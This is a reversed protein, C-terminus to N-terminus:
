VLRDFLQKLQSSGELFAKLEKPRNKLVETTLHHKMADPGKEKLWKELEELEQKQYGETRGDFFKIQAILSSFPKSGILRDGYGETIRNTRIDYIFHFSGKEDKMEDRLPDGIVVEQIEGEQSNKKVIFTVQGIRFMTEDFPVRKSESTALRIDLHPSPKQTSKFKELTEKSHLPLFYHSFKLLPNYSPNLESLSHHDVAFVKRAYRLRYDQPEKVQSKIQEQNVELNVEVNQEQEQDMQLELGLEVGGPPASKEAVKKLLTVSFSIKNLAKTAAALGLENAEQKAAELKTELVVKTEMDEKQLAGRRKAYTGAVSDDPEPDKVFSKRILPNKYVEMFAAPTEQSLLLSRKAKRLIADPTQMLAKFIQKGDGVADQCVAHAVAQNVTKIGLYQSMALQYQQLEQRLRGEKQFYDRLGDKESLTLLALAKKWLIIDTGRTNAQSFYFGSSKLETTADGIFAILQEETLFEVQKLKKTEKLGLTALDPFDNYVGAGDIIAQVKKDTKKLLEEPHEPDYFIVTENLARDIIRCIMQAQIKGSNPDPVFKPHMAETPGMTASVGSSTRNMDINNMPDTVIVKGNTTIKELRSKLFVEKVIDPKDNILQLLGQLGKPQKLLHPIESPNKGPLVKQFDALLQNKKLPDQTEDWENKIADFWQHFDYSGIGYYLYDQITYNIEEIPTGRKSGEQPSGNHCPVTRKGDASRSYESGGKAALTLKLNISLQDKFFAIKDQLALDKILALAGEKEGTVYEFIAKELTKDGKSYKKAIKLAATTIATERVSPEIEAQINNELGLHPDSALLDYVELSAEVYFPPIKKNGINLDLVIKQNPRNPEDVEDMNECGKNELLILIKRLYTFHELELETLPTGEYMKEALSFFKQELFPLSKYDTLLCGQNEITETMKLFIEKYASIPVKKGDQIEFSTTPSKGDVRLEYLYTNFLGGLVERLKSQTQAYVPPLVKQIVLNKGNARLLSGMVSLVATKGSGTPAMVLGRPTRVLTELLELQDLGGELPKFNIFNQAEFILLRPHTHPDYGRQLTLLRHLAESYSNWEKIDQPDGVALIEETLRMAADCANTKSLADFYTFLKNKLAPLDIDSPLKHNEILKELQGERGYAFRLEEITALDVKKSYIKLQENPKASSYLLADIEASTQIALHEFHKKKITLTVDLFLKLLLKDSPLHFRPRKNESERFANVEKQIQSLATQEQVGKVEGFQISKSVKTEKNFLHAVEENSFLIPEKKTKLPLPFSTEDRSLRGKEDVTTKPLTVPKVQFAEPLRTKGKLPKTYDQLTEELKKDAEILLSALKRKFPAEGETHHILPLLDKALEPTIKLKQIFKLATEPQKLLLAQRAGELIAPASGESIEGTNPRLDFAVFPIKDLQPDLATKTGIVPEILEGKLFKYALAIWHFFLAVKALGHAKPFLMEEESTLASSTPILLKKAKKSDPHELLLAHHMGNKEKLSATPNVFYGKFPPTLCALKGHQLEFSLGYRPLEVRKLEGNQTWLLTDEKNEFLELFDLSKKKIADAATVQMKGPLANERLDQVTTVQMGKPTTKLSLELDVKGKDNVIIGQVPDNPNVYMGRSLFPLPPKSKEKKMGKKLDSLVSFFGKKDSRDLDKELNQLYEPALVRPPLFELWQGNIQKYLVQKGKEDEIRTPIGSPDTFTYVNIAGKRQLNARVTRLFAKDLSAHLDAQNTIHPPLREITGEANLTSLKWVRLDIRYQQNEFILDGKQVWPSTDLAVNKEQCFIDLLPAINEQKIEQSIIQWALDMEKDFYPDINKRDTVGGRILAYDKIIAGLDKPEFLLARLHVRAAYGLSERMSEKELCLQLIKNLREHQPPVKIHKSFARLKEQLEICYLLADLRERALDQDIGKLDHALQTELDQIKAELSEPFTTLVFDLVPSKFFLADIFNRVEPNRLLHPYEHMFALIENQPLNILLRSLGKIEDPTFEQYPSKFLKKHEEPMAKKIHDMYYNLANEPEAHFAEPTTKLALPSVEISDKPRFIFTKYLGMLQPHEIPRIWAEPAVNKYFENIAYTLKGENKALFIDKIFLPVEKVEEQSLGALFPSIWKFHEALLEGEKEDLEVTKVGMGEEKTWFRKGESPSIENHFSSHVKFIERNENASRYELHIRVLQKSSSHERPYNYVSSFVLLSYDFFDNKLKFVKGYHLFSLESAIGAMKYIAELEYQTLHRADNERTYGEAFGNMERLLAGADKKSFNSLVPVEHFFRLVELTAVDRAEASGVAGIWQELVQRFAQKYEDPTNIQTYRSLVVPKTLEISAKYDVARGAVAEQIAASRMAMEQPVHLHEQLKFGKFFPAEAGTKTSIHTPKKRKAELLADQIVKLEGLIEKLEENQIHGKEHAAFVQSSVGEFTNQLRQFEQTHPRLHVRAEKFEEFLSLLNSRLKVRRMERGNLVEGKKEGGPLAGVVKWFLKDTRETPKSEKEGTKYNELGGFKGGERMVVGQLFEGFLAEEPIKAYHPHKGEKGMLQISYEGQEKQIMCLTKEDLNFLRIDGAGMKQLEKQFSELYETKVAGKKEDKAEELKIGFQRFRNEDRKLQHFCKALAPPCKADHTLYKEYHDWLNGLSVQKLPAGRGTARMLQPLHVKMFDPFQVKFFRAIKWQIKEWTKSPAHSPRVKNLLSNNEFFNTSEHIKNM